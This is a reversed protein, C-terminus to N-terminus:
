PTVVDAIWINGQYPVRITVLDGAVYALGSLEDHQPTAATRKIAGTRVDVEVVEMQDRVVAVTRGDASFAGSHYNGVPLRASLPRRSGTRPDLMTPVLGGTASALYLMEDSTPSAMPSWSSDAVLEVPPSSGDVPVAMVRPGEAGHRVFLLRRDGHEFVVEDDTGETTVQKRAAPDKLSGVYLGSEPASMAFSAGDSSVAVVGAEIGGVPLQRPASDGTLSVIWPAEKGARDSTVLVDSTGRIWGVSSVGAGFGKLLPRTFAGHADLGVLQTQQHCESWAVHKGDGSLVLGKHAVIGTSALSVPPSGDLPLAILEQTSANHRSLLLHRGDPTPALVEELDATILSRGAGSPPFLWLDMDGYEAAAIQLRKGAVLSGDALEIAIGGNFGAGPISRVVAGTTADNATLKSGTGTWVDTGDRTWSPRLSGGSVRHAPASGDLPAVYAGKGESGNSSLYAFRAGDPSVTAAMDWGAAHTLRRPTANPAIDVAYISSTAGETEDYLVTKGDPTFSPFEECSDGFTVRRPEAVRLSFPPAAPPSASSSAGIAGATPTVASRSRVVLAAVAVGGAAVAALAVWAPRRRAPPHAAGELAALMEVGSPWRDARERALARDVIECFPRPLDPREVALPPVSSERRLRRLEDLTSAPHPHKGTAAEYVVMGFAYVDAAPGIDTRGDLQEPAMYLPTGILAGERTLKLGQPESTESPAAAAPAQHVRSIGFDAIMAHGDQARVLVNSPKLDRHTVGAAHAAALGRAVDTAIRVVLDAPQKGRAVMTDLPEGEVLEMALGFRGPLEVLDHIRVVNPHTVKRAMQLERRFRHLELSGRDSAVVKLALITDAKLDHVRYVVGEGGRGLEGIVEYRNGLLEGGHQPLRPGSAVPSTTVVPTGTSSSPTPGTTDAVATRAFAVSDKEDRDSPEGV